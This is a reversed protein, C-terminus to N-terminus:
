FAVDGTVKPIVPALAEHLRTEWELRPAKALPVPNLSDFLSYLLEVGHTPLGRAAMKGTRHQICRQEPTRRTSGVYAGYWGNQATYGGRLVVYVHAGLRGTKQDELVQPTFTERVKNRAEELWPIPILARDAFCMSAQLDERRGALEHHALTALELCPPDHALWGKILTDLHPSKWNRFPRPHAYSIGPFRGHCVAKYVRHHMDPPNM